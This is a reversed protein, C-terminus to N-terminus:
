KPREALKRALEYYANLLPIYKGNELDKILEFLQRVYEAYGDYEPDNCLKLIMMKKLQFEGGIHYTLDEEPMKKVFENLSQIRQFRDFFPFVVDNCYQKVAESYQAFDAETAITIASIRLRYQRAAESNDYDRLTYPTQDVQYKRLLEDLPDEIEGFRVYMSPSEFYIGASRNLKNCRSMYEVHGTKKSLAYGFEDEESVVFGHEEFFPVLYKELYRHIEETEIPDYTDAPRIPKEQSYLKSVSILVLIAFAPYKM